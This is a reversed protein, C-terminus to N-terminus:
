GIYDGQGVTTLLEVNWRVVLFALAVLIQLQTQLPLINPFDLKYNIVSGLEFWLTDM